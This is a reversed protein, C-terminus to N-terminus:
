YGLISAVFVAKRAPLDTIGHWQTLLANIIGYNTSLIHSIVSKMTYSVYIYSLLVRDTLMFQM